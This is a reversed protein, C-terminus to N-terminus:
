EQQAITNQHCLAKGAMLIFYNNSCAITQSFGMLSSLDIKHVVLRGWIHILIKGIGHIAARFGLDLWFTKNLTPYFTPLNFGRISITM